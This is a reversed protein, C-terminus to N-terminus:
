LFALGCYNYSLDGVIDTHKFARLHGHASKGEGFISALANNSGSSFADGEVLEGKTGGLAGISDEETTGLATRSKGVESVAGTDGVRVGVVTDFWVDSGLSALELPSTTATSRTSELYLCFILVFSLCEDRASSSSILKQISELTINRRFHALCSLVIVM